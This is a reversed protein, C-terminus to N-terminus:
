EGASQIIKYLRTTTPMSQCSLILSSSDAPASCYKELAARHESVFDDADDVLVIRHGGLLSPTRAEDLVDALAAEPGRFRATGLDSPEAVLRAMLESTALQRLFRDSGVVAYVSKVTTTRAMGLM